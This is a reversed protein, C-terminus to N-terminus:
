FNTPLARVLGLSGIKHREGPKSLNITYCGAIGLGGFLQRSHRSSDDSLVETGIKLEQVLDRAPWMQEYARTMNPENYIDDYFKRFRVDSRNVYSDTFSPCVTIDPFPFDKITEEVQQHVIAEEDQLFILFLFNRKRTGVLYNIISARIQYCFILFLCGTVIYESLKEANM